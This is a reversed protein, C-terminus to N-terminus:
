QFIARYRDVAYMVVTDPLDPDRQVPQGGEHEPKWAIAGVTPRWNTLAAQAKEQGWVAETAAVEPSANRSVSTVWVLGDSMRAVDGLTDASRTVSSAVLFYRAVPNAPVAHRYVARSPVQAELRAAFAEVLERSM